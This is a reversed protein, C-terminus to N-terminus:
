EPHWYEGDNTAMILQHHRYLIGIDKEGGETLIYHKRNSIEFEFTAVMM